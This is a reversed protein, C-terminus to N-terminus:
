EGETETTYHEAYAPHILKGCETTMSNVEDLYWENSHECQWCDDEHAYEGDHLQVCDDSLEYENSHECHTCDDVLHYQDLREIYCTEDRCAYDGDALEVIDNESLYDTDYYNDGVYV